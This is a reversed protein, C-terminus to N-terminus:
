PSRWGRLQYIRPCLQKRRQIVTFQLRGVPYVIDVADDLDASCLVICLNCCDAACFLYIWKFYQKEVKGYPQKAKAM